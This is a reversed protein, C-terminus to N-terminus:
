VQAIDHCARIRGKKTFTVKCFRNKNDALLNRCIEIKQERTM